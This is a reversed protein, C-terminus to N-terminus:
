RPRGCGRIDGIRVTHQPPSRPEWSIRSRCVMIYAMVDASTCKVCREIAEAGFVSKPGTFHQVAAQPGNRANKENRVGAWHSFAIGVPHLAQQVLARKAPARGLQYTM